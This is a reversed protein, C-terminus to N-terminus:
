LNNAKIDHLVQTLDKIKSSNLKKEKALQIAKQQAYEAEEFMNLRYLLHAYTDYAYYAPEIALSRRCWTIAKLLHIENTTGTEYFDWAANNLATATGNAKPTAICILCINKANKGKSAMKEQRVKASDLQKQQLRKASDISISMYNNDYFYAAQRLYSSSDKIAKYFNLMNSQRVWEGSKYDKGYSGSVFNGANRALNADKKAIARDFSNKIIRRNITINMNLPQTKYISDRLSPYFYTAKMAKSDVAPGAQLIFLMENYNNVDKLKLSEVYDDILDANDYFGIHIKASIYASLLRESKDGSQYRKQYDAINNGSKLATTVYDVLKMYQEASSMFGASRYVLKGDSNLFLFCPFVVTGYRKQLQISEKSGLAARYCVFNDQFALAVKTENLVSRQQYQENKKTIVPGDLFLMIPKESLRAKQLVVSMAGKEFNIGQAQCAFSIFFTFFSILTTKM